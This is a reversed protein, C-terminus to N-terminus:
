AYETVLLIDSENEDEIERITVTGLTVFVGDVDCFVRISSGTKAEELIEPRCRVNLRDGFYDDNFDFEYRSVINTGRFVIKPVKSLEAKLSKQGEIEQDFKLEILLRKSREKSGSLFSKFIRFLVEKVMVAEKNRNEHNVKVYM